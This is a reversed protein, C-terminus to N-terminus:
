NQLVRTPRQPDCGARPHGTSVCVLEIIGHQSFDPDGQRDEEENRDRQQEEVERLRDMRPEAPHRLNLEQGGHQGQVDAHNDSEEEQRQEEPPDVARHDTREADHLVEDRPEGPPPAPMAVAEAVGRGARPQAPREKQEEDDRHRGSESADSGQDGRVAGVSADDLAQQGREPAPAVVQQCPRGFPDVAIGDIRDIDPHLPECRQDDGDHRKDHNGHQGPAVAARPAIRDARDPRQEPRQRAEREELRPEIDRLAVAALEAGAVALGRADVGFGM